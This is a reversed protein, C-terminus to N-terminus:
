LKWGKKKNKKHLLIIVIVSTIMVGVLVCVYLIWNDKIIDKISIMETESESIPKNSQNNVDIKNLFDASSKIGTEKEIFKQCFFLSSNNCYTYESYANYKPKILSINKIKQEYCESVESMIGFQYNYITGFDSNTFTYIGDTTDNYRVRIEEDTVDNKINISINETINYISIEFVYNPIFYTTKSGNVDLEKTVSKDIVEYKVKVYSAEQSLDKSVSNSCTLAYADNVLLSIVFFSLVSRLIKM